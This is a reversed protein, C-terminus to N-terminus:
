PLAEVPAHASRSRPPQEGRGSSGSKRGRTSAAAIKEAPSGSGRQRWRTDPRHRMVYEYFAQAALSLSRDKRSVLYIHRKLGPWDIPRVVLDAAAFQYLTLEPVISVGLGARVMASVTALQDVELVSPLPQPHTAADIYQRVSSTRSLHIFPWAAVDKPRVEALKALPHRTPCVLHFDDSCFPEARLEPTEARTAALAFDAQGSRVLEICPESLVDAVQLEIGPYASRFEALVPPLWGAALSPLLAISVRGRRRAAQDRVGALAGDFEDLVRRASLEFERGETTLEVSRTSRDFLRLGLADELQRILASFAPQSLHMAAAARTFNRQAALLVFARLQRTSVNMQM